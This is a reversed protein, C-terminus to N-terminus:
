GSCREQFTDLSAIQGANAHHDDVADYARLAAAVGWRRSPKWLDDLGLSAPFARLRTTKFPGPKLRTTIALSRRRSWGSLTSAADRTMTQTGQQAARGWSFRM